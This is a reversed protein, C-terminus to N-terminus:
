KKEVPNYLLLYAVAGEFDTRLGNQNATMNAMAAQLGTHFTQYTNLLYGICIHENPLEFEVSRATAQM